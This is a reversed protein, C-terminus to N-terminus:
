KVDRKRLTRTLFGLCPIRTILISYRIERQYVLIYIIKGLENVQFELNVSTM